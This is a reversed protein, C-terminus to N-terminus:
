NHNQFLYFTHQPISLVVATNLTQLGLSQAARLIIFISMNFISFFFTQLTQTEPDPTDCINARLNGHLVTQNIFVPLTRDVVQQQNVCIKRHLLVYIHISDLM